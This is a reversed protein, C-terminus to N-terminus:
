VKATRKVLTKQPDNTSPKERKQQQKEESTQVPLPVTSRLHLDRQPYPIEIQNEAFKQWVRELLDSAVNSLGAQPDNIWFRAELDVSSDGFGRLLVNPNPDELIRPIEAIAEYILKKALQLDSKYHIGIPVKRRVVVDSHSWNIM